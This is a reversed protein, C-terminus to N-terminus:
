GGQRPSAVGPPTRSPPQSEGGAARLIAETLADAAEVIRMEVHLTWLRLPLAAPDPIKVRDKATTVLVEVGTSRVAGAIRDLEAQRYAVHDDFAIREVLRAGARKLSAFFGEPNGLGCFACVARGALASVPLAEGAADVIRTPRHEALYVSAGGALDRLRVGLGILAKGGILDSRTIVIADADGLASVPERLLGRPLCHGYGFPCTADVLVVDLDRLLRRHQFGDDLALVDAGAAVAVKAAALRDANVVVPVGTLQRLLEAEESRGAVSRYGRILIAPTRGAQKLRAVVWAVMPTKGTGGTTINGVSIVPAGATASPLVGKRYAWRRLRMGTSYPVSAALLGLRAAAAAPGGQRGSLIDRAKQEEM